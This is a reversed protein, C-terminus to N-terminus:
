FELKFIDNNNVHMKDVPIKKNQCINRIKSENEQIIDKGLYIKNIPLSLFNNDQHSFIRYEDEYEWDKHKFAYMDLISHFYEDTDM